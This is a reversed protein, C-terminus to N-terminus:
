NGSRGSPRSTRTEIPDRAAKWEAATVAREAYMGALETLQERDAVIESRLRQARDDADAYVGTMANAMAPSALRYLAADSILLELPEATVAIKGCGQFDVGTKCVYRRVQKRPHSVLVANCAHCRLLGALLYRRGPRNTRRAPDTLLARIKATEAPTIIAPWVADGIIEGRHSRQGSIRASMLLGRVTDSRWQTKGTVTPVGQETLWRTLSALNEGALLRSALDRVIDAEIPRLTIRDLEYGFPRNAGGHPKGQEALEDMKRRVRRAKSASEQAAVAGMIRAILLGDGTGLNVDGTLTAVHKMGARDCVEAFEELEKPQRHLRDLHYVVVADRAGDAIDDLMRQYAPSRRGSYASVDNDVYEEAVTWGRREAEARCDALQRTVGLADGAQDSSIRAYIAAANPM